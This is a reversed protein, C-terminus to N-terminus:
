IGRVDPLDREISLDAGLREGVSHVPERLRLKAQPYSQPCQPLFATCATLLVQAYSHSNEAADMFIYWKVLTKRKWV